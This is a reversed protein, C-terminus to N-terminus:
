PQLFSARAIAARLPEKPLTMHAFAWLMRALRRTDFETITTIASASLADLLPVNHINLKAISWSLTTLGYPRM